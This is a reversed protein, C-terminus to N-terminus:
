YTLILLKLALLMLFFTSLQLRIENQVGVRGYWSGGNLKLSRRGPNAMSIIMFVMMMLWIIIMQLMRKVTFTFGISTSVIVCDSNGILLKRSLMVKIRFRSNLGSSKFLTFWLRWHPRQLNFYWKLDVLKGALIKHFSFALELDFDKKFIITLYSFKM